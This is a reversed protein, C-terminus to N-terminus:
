GLHGVSLDFDRQLRTKFWKIFKMSFGCKSEELMQEKLRQTM